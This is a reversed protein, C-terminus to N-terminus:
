KKRKKKTTPKEEEEKELVELEVVIHPNGKEYAAIFTIEPICFRNDDVWINAHTMGDFIVKPCM